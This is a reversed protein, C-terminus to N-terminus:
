AWEIRNAVSFEGLLRGVEAEIAPRQGAGAGSIRVHALTGLVNDAGVDVQVQLGKAQLAGLKERFVRGVADWRLKPKFIKGVATQPMAEILYVNVPAAARESIREKVFAQLEEATAKVDPKLQVYAVPLEGAYGDPKGVAAALEVAPHRHLTEEIVLPDINHGGRIILDKARGTLWLYGHEDIRGLDGSNVWGEAAFAKKNYQEQVYGPFVCPGHMIVVGIENPACERVLRGDDDLVATKVQLYPMRLGVSGYKLTGDKPGMVSYGTVETMGYGETVKVGTMEEFAKSVEVPMTSAGTLVMRMCGIDAKGIPINLLAGLVTPVAGAISCRYRELIRWYDRIVKPNRFGAPSLVVISMGKVFPVLSCVVVGGIHFLPLGAPLNDQHSWGCVLGIGWAQYVQGRHTHRALKPVGTTGGTHFYSAIDDPEIVRGSVLRDAPYRDIHADFSYIGRPEDGPGLVQFTAKLNPLRDRISDVKRWIDTGPLPGLAVLVKVNAAKLIELIQEPELLPNVACVIGAAEGGWLTFYSQPLLPLLFAVVDTPGIGFAHFMNAAQNIRGMLQRYTIALPEEDATGEMLQYIAVREPDLAAGQSIAEYTSNATLRQELPVREIAEIDRLDRIPPYDAATLSM